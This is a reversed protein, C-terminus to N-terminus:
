GHNAFEGFFKNRAEIAVLEALELDDFYGCHKNKGQVSVQVRYMGRAKSIGKMGTTNDKRIKVNQNNQSVTAVRLNEINNNAKNGDIHDICKPMYGYHMLFIIRHTSYKKDNIGVYSYGRNNINGAKDGAKMMSRNIKWYLDGEKYEFYHHAMQMLERDTM